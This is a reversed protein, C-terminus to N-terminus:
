IYQYASNSMGVWPCNDLWIGELVVELAKLAPLLLLSKQLSFRSENPIVLYLYGAFFLFLAGWISAVVYYTPVIASLVGCNEIFVHRYVTEYTGTSPDELMNYCYPMLEACKSPTAESMIQPKDYYKESTM